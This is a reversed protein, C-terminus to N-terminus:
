FLTHDFPDAFADISCASGSNESDEKEERQGAPSSRLLVAMASFLPRKSLNKHFGCFAAAKQAGVATLEDPGVLLDTRMATDGTWAGPPLVIPPHAAKIIRTPDDPKDNRDIGAHIKNRKQQM